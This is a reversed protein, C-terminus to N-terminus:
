EHKMGKLKKHKELLEHNIRNGEISPLVGTNTSAVM